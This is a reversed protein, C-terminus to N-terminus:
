QNCQSHSGLANWNCAINQNLTNNFFVFTIQKTHAVEECNQQGLKQNCSLFSEELMIPVGQCNIGWGKQALCQKKPTQKGQKNRFYLTILIM